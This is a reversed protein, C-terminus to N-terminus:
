HEPITFKRKELEEENFVYEDTLDAEHISQDSILIECLRACEQQNAALTHRGYLTHGGEYCQIDYEEETTVYGSYGNAYPVMIVETVEIEELQSQIKRELRKGAHVTLECSLGVLAVQGLVFIQIPLTEPVFPKDKIGGSIFHEKLTAIVPDVKPLKKLNKIGFVKGEAGELLIDKPNQHKYKIRINQANSLSLDKFRCFRSLVKAIAGLPKSLGIGDTTGEFFSVGMCPKFTRAGSVVSFEESIEIESFNVFSHIYRIQNKLKIGQSNILENAKKFQKEGNLKASMYDDSHEGMMKKRKRNWRFNPSVDGCCGLPFAHISDPYKRDMFEAAKGKNDGTIGFSDNGVSTPHVGVWNVSGILHENTKFKLMKMRNDIAEHLEPNINESEPNNMFAKLSRNFGVKDETAFLGSLYEIEGPRMNAYAEEVSIAIEQAYFDLMEKSYGPISFNYLPYHFHGGPASHTHTAFLMLNAKSVPLKDKLLAVVKRKLAFSVAGIEPNSLVITEEGNSIVYTRVYINDKIFQAKHFHMGYGFMGIGKILHTIDKKACGIKFM